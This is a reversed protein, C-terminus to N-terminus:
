HKRRKRYPVFYVVKKEKLRVSMGVKEKKIVCYWSKIGQVSGRQLTENNNKRMLNMFSRSGIGLQTPKNGRACNELLDAVKRGDNTNSPIYQYEVMDKQLVFEPRKTKKNIRMIVESLDKPRQNAFERFPIFRSLHWLFIDKFTMNVRKSGPKNIKTSNVSFTLLMGKPLRKAVFFGVIFMVIHLIILVILVFLAWRLVRTGWGLTKIAIEASATATGYSLSITKQNAFIFTALFYDFPSVIDKNINCTIRADGNNDIVEVDVGYPLLTLWGFSQLDIAITGNELAASLEEATCPVDDKYIRFSVAANTNKLDYVNLECAGNDVAEVYYASDIIEFEYSATVPSNGLLDAQLVLTKTGITLDPLVDKTLTLVLNGNQIVSHETVDVNNILLKYNILSNSFSAAIGDMTASFEVSFPTKDLLFASISLKQQTDCFVQLVSPIISVTQTNIRAVGTQTNTITATFVYQGYELDTGDFQVSMSGDAAINDISADYKAGDPYTITVQMDYDALGNSDVQANNVFLTYVVTSHRADIQDVKSELRYNEPNTEIYCIINSYMTYSGNLVSVAVSIANNGKELPIVGGINYGKGCYTVKEVPAGFIEALNLEENTASSYVKYQVRVEDGPRMKGNIERIDTKVWKGNVQSELYAEMYMAPEVLVSIDSGVARDYVFHVQGGSMCSGNSVVTSYGDDVIHVTADKNNVFTGQLTSSHTPKLTQGNYTVSQLVAGCNQVILAINNVAFKFKDLDVIVENGNIVYQGNDATTGYRGSIKNSIDQMAAVLEDSNPVYYASFPYNKNLPLEPDTLDTAGDGFALYVTQLGVYNKIRSEIDQETKQDDFMGDTLMVLWYEMNSNESYSSDGTLALGRETLVELAKDISKAPTSGNPYLAKTDAIKNKIESERDAASLDIQITEDKGDARVNMTTVYLEDQEGLLSALMELSYKAFETRDFDEMSFSNDFLVSVVKHTYSLEGAAQAFNFDIAFAAIAFCFVLILAFVIIYTRTRGNTM